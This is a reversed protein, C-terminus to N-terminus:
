HLVDASSYMREVDNAFSSFHLQDFHLHDHHLVHLFLHHFLDHHYIPHDTLEFTYPNVFTETESSENNRWEDKQNEDVTRVLLTDITLRRNCNLWIPNLHLFHFKRFQHFVHRCRGFHGRFFIDKPASKQIGVIVGVVLNCSTCGNSEFANFGLFEIWDGGRIIRYQLFQCDLLSAFTKQVSAM